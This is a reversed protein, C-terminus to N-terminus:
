IQIADAYINKEPHFYVPVDSQLPAIIVHSRVEKYIFPQIAEAISSGAAYGLIVTQYGKNRCEHYISRLLAEMIEPDQDRVAYEAITVDRFAEGSRPLAPSGLLRASLNYAMHISRMKVDRFQIRNKKFATMDWALCTGIIEEGRTAVYYDEITIGPRHNLNHQFVAQNMEPALLQGKFANSLLPIIQESDAITAKRVTFKSSSRMPKLTFLTAMTITGIPKSGLVGLKALKEAPRNWAMVYAYMYKVDPRTKVKRQVRKELQQLFIQGTGKQTGHMNGLYIFDTLVGSVYRKQYSAIAFGILQEKRFFGLPVMKYSTLRPLVFIDPSRDFHISLDGSRVPTKRTIELLKENWDESLERVSYDSENHPDKPDPEHKKM